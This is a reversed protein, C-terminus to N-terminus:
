STETFILFILRRIHLITLKNQCFKIQLIKWNLRFSQHEEFKSTLGLNSTCV